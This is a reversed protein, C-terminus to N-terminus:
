EEEFQEFPLFVCFENQNYEERKPAPLTEPQEGLLQASSELADNLQSRSTVAVDFFDNSNVVQIVVEGDVEPSDVSYLYETGRDIESESKLDYSNVTVLRLNDELACYQSQAEGAKGSSLLKLHEEALNSSSSCASILLLGFLSIKFRNTIKM